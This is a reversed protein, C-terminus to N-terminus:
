PTEVLVEASVIVVPNVWYKTGDATEWWGNGRYTAIETRYVIGTVKYTVGPTFDDTM